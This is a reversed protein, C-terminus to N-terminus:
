MHALQKYLEKNRIMNNNAIKRLDAPLTDMKKDEMELRHDNQKMYM